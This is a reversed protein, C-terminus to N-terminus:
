GLLQRNVWIQVAIRQKHKARVIDQRYEVMPLATSSCVFTMVM